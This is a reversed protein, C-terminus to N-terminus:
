NRNKRSKQLRAGPPRLGTYGEWWERAQTFQSPQMVFPMRTFDNGFWVNCTQDLGPQLCIIWRQQIIENTNLKMWSSKADTPSEKCRRPRELKRGCDLSMCTLTILSEFNATPTFTVPSRDLAQGAERFQFLLLSYTSPHSKIQLM